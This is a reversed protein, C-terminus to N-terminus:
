VLACLRQELSQREETTRILSCDQEPLTQDISEKIELDGGDIGFQYKTGFSSPNKPDHVGAKREPCNKM